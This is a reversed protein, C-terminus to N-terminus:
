AKRTEQYHLVLEAAKAPLTEELEMLERLYEPQFLDALRDPTMEKKLAERLLVIRERMRHLASLSLFCRKMLKHSLQDYPFADLFKVFSPLLPKKGQPLHWYWTSLKDPFDPFCLGHDIAVLQDVGVLINGTNRDGNGLILDLIFLLQYEELPIREVEERQLHDFVIFGEIFEQFSGYKTKNTRMLSHADEQALFFASHTFQAYCTKPVIGFGFFSDVLFAAVERHAAEGIRM